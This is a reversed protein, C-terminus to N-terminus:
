ETPIRSIKLQSSNNTFLKTYIDYIYQPKCAYCDIWQVSLQWDGLSHHVLVFGHFMHCQAACFFYFKKKKNVNKILMLRGPLKRIIM